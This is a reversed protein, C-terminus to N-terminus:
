SFIGEIELQCNSADLNSQKLFISPPFYTLKSEHGAAGPRAASNGTSSRMYVSL